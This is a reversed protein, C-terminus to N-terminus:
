QTPISYTVTSFNLNTIDSNNITVSANTVNFSYGSKSPTVIYIGKQTVYFVYHGMSTTTTSATATGSLSVTVGPFPMEGATITGSISYTDAIFNQESVDANNITVPITSPSFSYGTESATLTYDGNEVVQFSYNGSDDTKTSATTLTTLGSLAVTVGQM